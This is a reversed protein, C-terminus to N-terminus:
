PGTARREVVRANEKSQRYDMSIEFLFDNLIVADVRFNGQPESGDVLSKFVAIRQLAAGRERPGRTLLYAARLADEWQIRLRERWEHSEEDLAYYTALFASAAGSFREWSRVADFTGGRLERAAETAREQEIAKERAIRRRQWREVVALSRLTPRLSTVLLLLGAVGLLLSAIQRLDGYYSMPWAKLAGALVITGWGARFQSWDPGELKRM